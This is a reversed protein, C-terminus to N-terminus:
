DGRKRRDREAIATLIDARAPGRRNVTKGGERRGIQVTDVGHPKLAATLQEPKWGAYVDPRLEALLPLLTENWVKDGGAKDDDAPWIRAIDGLLDFAPTTDRTQEDPNPLTGAARRLDVARNV